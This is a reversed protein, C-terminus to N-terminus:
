SLITVGISDPLESEARLWFEMDRGLPSGAAEWLKEAAKRTAEWRCGPLRMDDDPEYTAYVKSDEDIVRLRCVVRALNADHKLSKVARELDPFPQRWAKSDKWEANPDDRGWM